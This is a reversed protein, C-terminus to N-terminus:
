GLVMVALHRKHSKPGGDYRMKGDTNRVRVADGILLM